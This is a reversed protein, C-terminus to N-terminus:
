FDLNVLRRGLPFFLGKPLATPGSTAARASGSRQAALAISIEASAIGLQQAYPAGVAQGV